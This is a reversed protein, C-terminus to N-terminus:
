KVLFVEFYRHKDIGHRCIANHVSVHLSIIRGAQLSNVLLVAGIQRSVNVNNSDINSYTITHPKPSINDDAQQKAAIGFFLPYSALFSASKCFLCQFNQLMHPRLISHLIFTCSLM